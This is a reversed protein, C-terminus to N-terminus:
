AALLSTDVGPWKEIPTITNVVNMGADAFRKFAKNADGTFDIVGPIIVPSTCDELLYVKKVLSPDQAMIETLLDDISWAVCHSKAQGAIVVMDFSFLAKIFRANKQAIPNGDYGTLVEPQLISYNETLPNGGKVEYGTQSSRAINHFHFAEQVISVLAHGISGLMAHYPWVLLPYKGGDALTKTYHLAHKQLYVLTGSISAGTKEPALYYAIRPNVKWMGGKVDDYTIISGPDPHQGQDNVWFQRHFIQTATHTDLTPHIETIVGLNRYVWEALRTSDDIAGAVPLEFEPLCFTNQVDIPLLCIRLKDKAAPTIGHQKAWGEADAERALYDVNWVKDAQSPNFFGPVPLSTMTVM